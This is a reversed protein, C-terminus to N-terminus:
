LILEFPSRSFEISGAASIRFEISGPHSISERVRKEVKGMKGENNGECEGGHDL